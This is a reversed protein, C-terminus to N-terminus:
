YLYTGKPVMITTSNDDSGDTNDDSKWDNPQLEIDRDSSRTTSIAPPYLRLTETVVANLYPFDDATKTTADGNARCIEDVCKEEVEPHTAILSLAFTLATSSTEFGAFLLSKVVDAIANESFDVDNQESARILNSLLDKQLLRLTVVVKMQIYNSPDMPSTVMRRMIEHGLFDFDQALANPQLNKCCEFDTQLVAQGFADLTLMQLVRQLDDISEEKKLREVLTEAAQRFAQRNNEVVHQGHLAKVTISRKTKWEKGKLTALNQKGFSREM